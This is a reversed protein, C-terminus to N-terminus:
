RRGSACQIDGGVQEMCANLQVGSAVSTYKLDEVELKVWRAQWRMVVIVFIASNNVHM